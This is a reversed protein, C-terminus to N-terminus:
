KNYFYTWLNAVQTICIAIVIFLSLLGLGTLLSLMKKNENSNGEDIVIMNKDM